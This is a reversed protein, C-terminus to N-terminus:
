GATNAPHSFEPNLRLVYVDFLTKLRAFLEGFRLLSAKLGHVPAANYAVANIGFYDATFLARTNRFKESIVTINKQGFKLGAGAVSVFTGVGDYDAIIYKGPIGKKILDVRMHEPENCNYNGSVIIYSIKNNKYLDVAAKISNEYFPNERGDEAYESTGLLLGAKNVPLESLTDYCRKKRAKFINESIILITLGSLFIVTVVKKIKGSINKL